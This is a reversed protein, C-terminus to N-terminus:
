RPGIILVAPAVTVVSWPVPFIEDLVTDAVLALAAVILPPVLVVAWRVCPQPVVPAALRHRVFRALSREL